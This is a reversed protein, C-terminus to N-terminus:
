EFIASEAWALRFYEVIKKDNSLRPFNSANVSQVLAPMTNILSM